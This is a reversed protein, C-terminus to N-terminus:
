CFILAPQLGGGLIDDSLGSITRWNPCRLQPTFRKSSPYRAANLLDREGSLCSDTMADNHKCPM